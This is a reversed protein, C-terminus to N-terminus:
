TLVIRGTAASITPRPAAADGPTIGADIGVAALLSRRKLEVPRRCGTM